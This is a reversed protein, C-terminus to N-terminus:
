NLICFAALAMTPSVTMIAYDIHSNAMDNSSHWILGFWSVQSHIQRNASAQWM